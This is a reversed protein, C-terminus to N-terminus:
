MTRNVRLTTEASDPFKRQLKKAYSEVEKTHGLRQESRLALWLSQPTEKDMNHFRDLLELTKAYDGADFQMSAMEYVVASSRPAVLLAKSFYETAMATDGGKRACKGANYLAKEPTTYLPNTYAKTLWEIGKSANGRVCLFWGYNNHIDPNDRDLRLAKQFAKEAEDHRNLDMNVIGLLSQLPAYDSAIDQAGNLERLAQGLQGQGYYEAALKLRAMLRTELHEREPTPAPTQASAFTSLTMLSLVVVFSRISLM